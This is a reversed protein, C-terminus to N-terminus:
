LSMLLGKPARNKPSRPDAGERRRGRSEDESGTEEPVGGPLASASVYQGPEGVRLVWHGKEDKKSM